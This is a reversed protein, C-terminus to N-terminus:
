QLTLLLRRGCFGAFNHKKQPWVPWIDFSCAQGRHICVPSVTFFSVTVRVSPNPIVAGPSIVSIGVIMVVFFALTFVITSHGLSFWFGVSLPKPQQPEGTVEREVNDAILKRTANDVAAIHDVLYRVRSEDHVRREGDADVTETDDYAAGNETVYLPPLNPYENGLRVLLTRLGAPHVEWGMGTLPLDRIPFTVFESGPFPSAHNDDATARECRHDTVARMPAGISGLAGAALPHRRDAFERRECGCGHRGCAGVIAADIDHLVRVAAM